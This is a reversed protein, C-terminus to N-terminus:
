EPARPRRLAAVPRDLRGLFPIAQSSYTEAADRYAFTHDAGRLVSPHGIM